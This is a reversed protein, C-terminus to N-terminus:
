HIVNVDDYTIKGDTRRQQEVYKKEFHKVLFHADYNKLNHFLVPLFYNAVYDEEASDSDDDDDNQPANSQRSKKNKPKTGKKPKHKTPTIKLQLNCNNCAAFLFNDSIHCHHRVKWNTETFLQGCNVCQEAKDYSSQQQETLPIMPVNAGIIKALANSESMVHSYFESM